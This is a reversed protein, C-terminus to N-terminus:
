VPIFVIQAIFYFNNKIQLHSPSSDISNILLLSGNIKNLLISIYNISNSITCHNNNSIPVWMNMM